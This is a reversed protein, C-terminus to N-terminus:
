RPMQGIRQLIDDFRPDNRLSDLNPAVKLYMVTYHREQYAKELWEFAKENEGIRAYIEALDFAESKERRADEIEQELRNRWYVDADSASAANRLAATERDDSGALKRRMQRAAIAERYMGKQDYCRKLYEHIEAFEPNIEVIKQGQAIAEDYRRAFYLIWVEGANVIPSLPDIEKARRIEALAEDFRGMATLYESYWQRATAYNPNLAIARRYSSEAGEWDWYYYMKVYALSTHAGALNDDLELAKSAAARAKEYSEKPSVAGYDALLSYADALGVYALAYNPDKEVAESFYKVAEKLDGPTRRNWFFRGRVYAHHADANITYRKTLRESDGEGLKLGLARATQESLRDELDFVRASEGEFKEAWIQEGNEVRLLRVNLRVRGDAEYVTGELVADVSLKKGIELADDDTFKTVASLPRVIVTKLGGIKTILADTLGLGVTKDNEGANLSRLPLVAISGIKSTPKPKSSYWIGFIAAAMILGFFIFITRKPFKKEAAPLLLPSDSNDEEVRLTLRKVTRKELITENASPLIQRVDASFRYGHKPLTEILKDGNTNLIKRLRSIKKALNGEEVFADQWVATIMEEKSLARGNNEVLLLLTEFEKAPLHLPVGNAFLTKEQPDLAFKGFEYVFKQNADKM